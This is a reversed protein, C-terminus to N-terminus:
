WRLVSAEEIIGVVIGPFVGLLLTAAAPIALIAGIPAGAMRGTAPAVDDTPERMYMLVIVRLYFFAAAVSAIVGILALAWYGEGIAAAFVNVKAIFGATPPIGALSLLFLSMLAAAIPETRALGAYDELRTRSEGRGSVLMVTGFAGVTMAAYAVLYFVASRIGPSGPATLGTLIFGAHAISSYALMRKVNTQAIALISGGVVSAAALGWVVPTWDWALAQFAVDLVRILACFAAIKTAASMYATVPTPAGQYVDPTWMHFPVASVKFGFGVALLAFGLVALAQTDGLGGLSLALEPIKTTATAGYAMAVGFLFFASSFAGLLFYKLAAESAARRGTLGTLVYLALSLIELALFTVLLDASAVILTMGSTAFLVLPTFEGRPEDDSRSFYQHGLLLGLAAVVLLLLRALVAFRDAAITGGFVTAAGDWNWLWLSTAGALVVGALGIWLHVFPESRRAFAEYLLGAIAFVVLCLEPLLPEFVLEPTPLVQQGIM